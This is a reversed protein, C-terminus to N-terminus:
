HRSELILMPNKIFKFSAYELLALNLIASYKNCVRPNRESISRLRVSSIIVLSGEYPSFVSCLM